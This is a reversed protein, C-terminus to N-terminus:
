LGPTNLDINLDREHWRRVRMDEAKRHSEATRSRRHEKAHCDFCLVQLNARDFCRAEMEESSRAGEVARIHHVALRQTVAGCRSCRWNAATKMEMALRAWRKSGVLRRYDKDKSM